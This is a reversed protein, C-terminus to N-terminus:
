PTIGLGELHARLQPLNLFRVANYGSALASEVNVARDDIFIAQEPRIRTIALVARYIDDDPKVM